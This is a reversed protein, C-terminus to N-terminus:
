ASWASGARPPRSRRHREIDEVGPEERVYRRPVHPKADPGPGDRRRKLREDREEVSIGFGTKAPQETKEEARAPPQEVAAPAPAPLPHTPAPPRWEEKPFAKEIEAIARARHEEITIKNEIEVKEDVKAM